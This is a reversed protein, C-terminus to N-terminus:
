RESCSLLTEQSNEHSFKMPNEINYNMLAFFFISECVVEGKPFCSKAFALNAETFNMWANRFCCVSGKETSVLTIAIAAKSTFGHAHNWNPCSSNGLPLFHFPPFFALRWRKITQSVIRAVNWRFCCLRCMGRKLQARMHGQPQNSFVTWICVNGANKPHTKENLHKNSQIQQIQTIRKLFFDPVM